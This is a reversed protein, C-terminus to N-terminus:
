REHREAQMQYPNNAHSSVPLSPCLGEEKGMQSTGHLVPMEWSLTPINNVKPLPARQLTELM